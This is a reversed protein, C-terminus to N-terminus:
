AFTIVNLMGSVIQFYSNICLYRINLLIHITKDKKINFLAAIMLRFALM